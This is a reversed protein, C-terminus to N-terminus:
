PEGIIDEVKINLGTLYNFRKIENIRQKKDFAVLHSFVAETWAVLENNVYGKTEIESVVDGLSVIKTFCRIQDGPLIDRKIGSDRLLALVVGYKFKCAYIVLWFGMQAISEIVLTGPIVPKGPFHEKLFDASMSKLAVVSEDKTM